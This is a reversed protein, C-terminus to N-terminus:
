CGCRKNRIWNANRTKANKHQRLACFGRLEQYCLKCKLTFDPKAASHKKAFHYNLDNQPKTYCNPCHTCFLIGASCSKKHWVNNNRTNQTGGNECTIKEKHTLSPMEIITTQCLVRFFVHLVFRNSPLLAFSIIAFFRLLYKKM